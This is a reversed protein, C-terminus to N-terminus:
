ILTVEGRPQIQTAKSALRNPINNQLIFAEVDAISRFVVYGVGRVVLERRFWEQAESLRGTQAKAELYLTRGDPTLLSLDFVGPLTGLASTLRATEKSRLGGNPTHWVLCDPCVLRLYRLAQCHLATEPNRKAGTRRLEVSREVQKNSGKPLLCSSCHLLAGTSLDAGTPNKSKLVRALRNGM